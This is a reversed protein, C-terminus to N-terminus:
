VFSLFASLRLPQRFVREEPRKPEVCVFPLLHLVFDEIFFRGIGEVGAFLYAQMSFWAWKLFPAEIGNGYGGSGM